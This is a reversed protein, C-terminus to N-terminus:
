KVRRLILDELTVSNLYEDMVEDLRKWMPYTLCSTARECGNNEGSVCDVPALSGEMLTLVSGVTYEGPAKALRYGGSKGRQSLVMGGKNLVAVISELYKMSIGQREAVDKLSVYEDPDQQALDLMVSLAYRGKTSVIM